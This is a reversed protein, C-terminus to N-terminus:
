ACRRLPVRVVVLAVQALHAHRQVHDLAVWLCLRVGGHALNDVRLHACVLGVKVGAAAVARSEATCCRKFARAASRERLLVHPAHRAAGQLTPPPM